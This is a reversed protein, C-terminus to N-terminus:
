HFLNGLAHVLKVLLQRVVRSVFLENSQHHHTRKQGPTASWATIVLWQGTKNDAVVTVQKHSFNKSFRYGGKPSKQTKDPHRITDYAENRSVGRQSLRQELHHTWIIEGAM